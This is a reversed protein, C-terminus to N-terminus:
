LQNSVWRRHMLYQYKDLDLTINKYKSKLLLSIVTLLNWYSEFMVTSFEDKHRQLYRKGNHIHYLLLTEDRDPDKFLAISEICMARLRLNTKKYNVTRLLPIIQDYLEQHLCVEAKALMMLEQQHPTDVFSIWKNIFAFLNDKSKSAGITGIINLFRREPIKGRHMLVGCEFCYEYLRYIQELSLQGAKYFRLAYNLCYLAVLTHLEDGLKLEGALLHKSLASLAKTDSQEIILILLELIEQNETEPLCQKLQKLRDISSSYDINQIYGWNNMEVQYLISQDVIKTSYNDMLKQFLEDSEQYKIPNDSYYQNHYLQHLYDSKQLSHKDFDSLTSELQHYYKNAMGYVGRRNLAKILNLQKDVQSAQGDFFVLWNKVLKLTRSLLNSYGKATLHSFINEKIQHPNLDGKQQFQKHLSNVVRYNDSQKDHSMLVFKVLSEWEEKTLTKLVKILSPEKM